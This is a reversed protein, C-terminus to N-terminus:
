AATTAALRRLVASIDMGLAAAVSEAAALTDPLQRFLYATEALTLSVRYGRRARDVAVLDVDGFPTDITLGDSAISWDRVQVPPASPRTLTMVAPSTTLM